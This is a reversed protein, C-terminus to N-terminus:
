CNYDPVRKRCLFLVLCVIRGALLKPTIFMRPTSLFAFILHKRVYLYPPNRLTRSTWDKNKKNFFIPNEGHGSMM